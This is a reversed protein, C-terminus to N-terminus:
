SAINPNAKETHIHWLLLIIINKHLGNCVASVLQEIDLFVASVCNLVSPESWSGDADCYRTAEGSIKDCVHLM